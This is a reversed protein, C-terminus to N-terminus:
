NIEINDYSGLFHARLYRKLQGITLESLTKGYLVSMENWIHICMNSISYIGFSFTNHVSQFLCGIASNRTTYMHANSLQVFQNHFCIPPERALSNHVLICNQMKVIDSLKLIDLIYYLIDCNIFTFNMIKVAKNQLQFIKRNHVTETQAWIQCGYTIHSSFIAYYLM